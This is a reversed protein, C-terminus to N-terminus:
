AAELPQYQRQKSAPLGTYCEECAVWGPVHRDVYGRESLPQNCLLCTTPRVAPKRSPAPSRRLQAIIIVMLLLGIAISLLQDPPMSAIAGLLEMFGNAFAGGAAGGGGRVM